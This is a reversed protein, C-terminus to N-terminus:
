KEVGSHWLYYLDNRPLYFLLRADCMVLMVAESSRAVCHTLAEDAMVYVQNDRFAENRADSPNIRKNFVFARM